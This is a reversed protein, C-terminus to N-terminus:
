RKECSATPDLKDFDSDPLNTLHTRDSRATNRDNSGLKTSVESPPGSDTTVHKQLASVFNQSIIDGRATRVQYLYRYKRQRAEERTERSRSGSRTKYHRRRRHHLQRRHDIKWATVFSQVLVGLVSSIPWCCLIVGGWCPPPSPDPKMNFIWDLTNLGHMFFDISCLIMASGIISSAIISMFKPCFLAVIACIIAGGIVSVFLENEGFIYHPLTAICAAITAGAVLAGASAGILTSSIPHTSGLVAGFLGAVVALAPAALNGFGTINKNQLLIICGAGAALGTLFGIARLCRYGLLTYVIGFVAITTWLLVAVTSNAPTTSTCMPNEMANQILFPWVISQEYKADNVTALSENKTQVAPLEEHRYHM